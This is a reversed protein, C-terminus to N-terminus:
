GMGDERAPNLEYESPAPDDAGLIPWSLWEEWRVSGVHGGLLDCIGVWGSEPQTTEQSYRVATNGDWECERAEGVVFWEEDEASYRLTQEGDKREDGNEPEPEPKPIMAIAERATSRTSHVARHMTWDKGDYACVGYGVLDDEEDILAVVSYTKSM